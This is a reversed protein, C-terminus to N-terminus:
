WNAVTKNFVDTVLRETLQNIQAPSLQTVDVNEPFDQPISFLQEFSEEPNKTNTFRVQVGLTLRNLAAQNNIGDREIAAPTFTFSVIQGELQLDGERQLITLNTNRRYFEKFNNTVLQTLNAPGEGTSNEFNQISITKIDPSLTTGSFSYVGCGSLSLSALGLVLNFLRFNIKLTM